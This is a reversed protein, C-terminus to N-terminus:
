NNKQLSNMSYIKSSWPSYTKMIKKITMEHSEDDHIENFFMYLAAGIVANEEVSVDLNLNSEVHKGEKKLRQKTILQMIKPIYFFVTALMILSLFVVSIGVISIFIGDSIFESNM